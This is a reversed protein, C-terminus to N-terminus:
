HRLAKLLGADRKFEEHVEAIVGMVAEPALKLIAVAQAFDEVGAFDAASKKEVHNALLDALAVSATLQASDGAGELHHHYKVAQVVEPPLGWRNLLAGGVESHDFGFHDKEAACLSKGEVKLNRFLRGYSAGEESALAIKGVDHLLGTIFAYDAAAGVTTAVVGAAVGTAMSHRCLAEVELVSEINELSITRTASVMMVVRYVEYFGLRSIAEFMDAVSTEGRFRASNCLKMVETTLSPDRSVLKVVEDIDPDPEKFIALLRLMHSPAPPLCEIQNIYTEVNNKKTKSIVKESPNAM